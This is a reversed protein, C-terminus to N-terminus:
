VYRQYEISRRIATINNCDIFYHTNWKVAMYKNPLVGCEFKEWHTLDHLADLQESVTLNNLYESITKKTLKSTSSMNAQLRALHSEKIMDHKKMCLTLAPLSIENLNEYNVYTTTKYSFYIECIEYIQYLCLSLCLINFSIKYMKRSLIM